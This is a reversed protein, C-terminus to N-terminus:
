QNPQSCLHVSKCSAQTAGLAGVSVSRPVLGAEVTRKAHGYIGAAIDEHGFTKGMTNAFHGGISTHRICMHADQNQLRTSTKGKKKLQLLAYM